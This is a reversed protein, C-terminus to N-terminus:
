EEVTEVIQEEVDVADVFDAPNWQIINSKSDRGIFLCGDFNSEATDKLSITTKETLQLPCVVVNAKPLAQLNLDLDLNKSSNVEISCPMVLPDASINQYSSNRVTINTCNGILNLNQVPWPIYINSSSAAINVNVFRLNINTCNGEIYLSGGYSMKAIIKSCNQGIYIRCLKALPGTTVRFGEIYILPLKRQPQSYYTGPTNVASINDGIYISSGLLNRIPNGKEVKVGSFEETFYIFHLPDYPFRKPEDKYVLEYIIGRYDDNGYKKVPGFEPIAEVLQGDSGNRQLVYPKGDEARVALSLNANNPGGFGSAYFTYGRPYKKLWFELDERSVYGVQGRRYGQGSREAVILDFEYEEPCWNFDLPKRDFCYKCFYEKGDRILIVNEDFSNNTIAKIFIRGQPALVDEIWEYSQRFFPVYDSIVYEQGPILINKDKLEKLRDYTYEQTIGLKSNLLHKLELVSSDMQKKLETIHGVMEKLVKGMWYAPVRLPGDKGIVKDILDRIKQTDM